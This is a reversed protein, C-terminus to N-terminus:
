SAALPPASESAITPTKRHLFSRVTLLLSAALLAGDRLMTLPSIAEGAGFCGCNIQEGRLYARVMLAFFLALLFSAVTTSVRRWVGAILVIALLLELWPLARAVVNVGWDPLLHYADVSMAFLQWPDRLKAWAAYGFVAGIVVRVVLLLTRVLRSRSAM